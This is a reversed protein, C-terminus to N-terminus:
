NWEKEYALTEKKRTEFFHVMDGNTKNGFNQQASARSAGSDDTQNINIIHFDGNRLVHRASNFSRRPDFSARPKLILWQSGLPATIVQLGHRQGRSM